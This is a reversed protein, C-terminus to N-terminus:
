IKEEEDIRKSELMVELLNPNEYEIENFVLWDIFENDNMMILTSELAANFVHKTRM